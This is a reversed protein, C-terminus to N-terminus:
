GAAKFSKGDEKSIMRALSDYRGGALLTLQKSSPRQKSNTTSRDKTKIEFCLDNYYDLGRVMMHDVVYEIGLSKLSEQIGEFDKASEKSLYTLISPVKESAEHSAFDKSDLIRLPNTDVRRRNEESLISWINPLRFYQQLIQNYTNRSELDGISNIRLKTFEGLGRRL